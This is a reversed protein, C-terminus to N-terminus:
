QIKTNFQSTRLHLLVGWMIFVSDLYLLHPKQCKWLFIFYYKAFDNVIAAYYRLPISNHLERFATFDISTFLRYLVIKRELSVYKYLQTQPKKKTKCLVPTAFWTFLTCTKLNKFANKYEELGSLITEFPLTSFRLLASDIVSSFDIM